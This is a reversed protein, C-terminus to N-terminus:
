PGSGIRESGTMVASGWPKRLLGVFVLPNRQQQDWRDLWDCLPIAMRYVGRFRRVIKGLIGVSCCADWFYLWATSFSGNSGELWEVHLGSEQALETIGRRTLLVRGLPPYDAYAFPSQYFLLGGPVLVRSAERFMEGPRITYCTVGYLIVVRFVDNYFPLREADAVIDLHNVRGDLEMANDLTVYRVPLDNFLTRFRGTGAGDDLIVGGARVAERGSLFAGCLLAHLRHGKPYGLSAVREELQRRECPERM